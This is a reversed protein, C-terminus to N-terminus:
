MNLLHGGDVVLVHGSIYDAKVLFSVAEGIEEPKGLRGLPATDKVWQIFEPGAETSMDTDINGPAVANVTVGKSGLERAMAYTIPIVAAKAATYALVSAAGTLAYTSTINVIRGFGREGMSPAFEKMTYLVSTLNADITSKIGEPDLSLWDGPREIFGANNVLVDVPGAWEEIAHRLATVEGAKTVDCCFARARVGLAEIQSVVQAAKQQREKYNVAVACGDKALAIAIAAGLGRSAGTVLAVKGKLKQESM